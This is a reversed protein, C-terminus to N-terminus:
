KNEYILSLSGLISKFTDLCTGKEETVSCISNGICDLTRFSYNTGKKQEIFIKSGGASKGIWINMSMPIATGALQKQKEFTEVESKLWSLETLPKSVSCDNEVSDGKCSNIFLVLAIFFFITKM